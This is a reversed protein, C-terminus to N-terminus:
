SSAMGFFVWRHKAGYRTDQIAGAPGRKEYFRPDRTLYRALATPDSRVEDISKQVDARIQALAQAKTLPPHGHDGQEYQSIQWLLRGIQSAEESHRYSSDRTSASEHKKTMAPLNVTTLMSKERKLMGVVAKAERDHDVVIYDNKEAITGTYGGHGEENRALLIASRFAEDVTKGEAVTIFNSAGM